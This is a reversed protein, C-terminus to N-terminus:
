LKLRINFRVLLATLGVMLLAWFISGAIVVLSISSHKYILVSLGTMWILHYIIDPALYTTLSNEGAPKLFFTWKTQKRVDIIWFLLAFVILSIGNCLLGWSPTARIKSIIFWKRLVFGAVICFAGMIVLMIITKRYDPSLKKMILTTLMGSIVIFPVNGEILVGLIPKV